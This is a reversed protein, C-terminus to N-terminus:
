PEVELFEPPKAQSQKARLWQLSLDHNRDTQKIVFFEVAVLIKQIGCLKNDFSKVQFEKYYCHILFLLEQRKVEWSYKSFVHSIIPIPKKHYSRYSNLIIIKTVLILDQRQSLDKRPGKHRHIQSASVHHPLNLAQDRSGQGAM